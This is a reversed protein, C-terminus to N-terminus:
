FSALIDTPGGTKDSASFFLELTPDILSAGQPRVLNHIASM